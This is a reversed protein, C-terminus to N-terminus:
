LNHHFLMTYPSSYSMHDIFYHKSSPLTITYKNGNQLSSALKIIIVNKGTYTTYYHYTSLSKIYIRKGNQDRLIVNIPKFGPGPKINSQPSFYLWITQNDKVKSSLVPPCQRNVLKLTLPKTPATPHVFYPILKGNRHVQYLGSKRTAYSYAYENTGIFGKWQNKWINGTGTAYVDYPYNQSAKNILSMQGTFFKDEHKYTYKVLVYTKSYKYDKWTYYCQHGSSDKWWYTGQDIVPPTAKATVVNNNTDSENYATSSGIFVLFVTLIISICLINKM